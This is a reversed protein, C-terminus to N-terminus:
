GVLSGNALVGVLSTTSVLWDVQSTDIAAETM